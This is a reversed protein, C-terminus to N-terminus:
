QPMQGNRSPLGALNNLIVQRDNGAGSNLVNGDLNTDASNYTNLVQINGALVMLLKQRDNINIGGDGGTYLLISNNSADGGWMAKSTGVTRQANTGYTSATIFNYTVTTSIATQATATMIGLHNRHQVALHYTGPVVNFLVRSTGDIDVIDGNTKLLASRTAIIDTPTSSSRLELKVWDVIGDNTASTVITATEGTSYPSTQPLLNKTELANNMATGNTNLPGALFVKAEVELCIRLTVSATTTNPCTGDTFTYTVLYTGATSSALNIEGTTSNIILGSTSTYTGGSQGTQTVSATGRNKCYPSNSYAISAIPVPNVVVLAGGSFTGVCVTADSLATVSYNGAAAEDIVYPSVTIGNVTTSTTGNTYTLSWPQSGTLAISVNPLTASACVIGGGSVTATPNVCATVPTTFTWVPGTTTNLGDSVEVYWEYEAGADLSAWPLCTQTGSAVSLNTGILTFPLVAPALNVDLTFESSADIEYSNTQTSYTQVYIKNESPRFEFIRFLGNGGNTRGQYDSLITHMTNGLYTDTRRAEGTNGTIHGGVMLFVNPYVKLRTYLAQGQTGFAAAGDITYHTMIIIKKNPNAVVLGEAWDLAGGPASFAATQDYEVSIVMYDIGSASFLQYHNDNNSGNHGGYYNKGTFHAIGFTNNYGTTTGLADGIPTQDHNGACVGYPIGQPLGTTGANELSYMATAARTWEIPQADGHEVCDGLQGVYVINRAARNAVVWATQNNFFAPSAGHTQPEEVYYQTDPLWVMTFNSQAAQKKRGYFKVELNGGNPDSVTTCINPSTSAATAADAPAPNTPQAPPLNVPLTYGITLKPRDTVTAHERSRLQQGDDAHTAIMLWGNNSAPNNLWGQITTAPVTVTILGVYTDVGPWNANVVSEADTGNTAFHRNGLSAFSVTTENWPVLMRHMNFGQGEADVYFQLLASQITSGVPISSLDFSLLSTRDDPPVNAPNKDQVFTIEAGRATTPSVDYIYTDRTGNYGNVGDQLSISILAIGCTPGAFSSPGTGNIARVRYCYQSGATTTLDNYTAINAAVTALLTYTGTLTTSREIQFGTEDTANDTWSLQMNTGSIPTLSLNTPPSPTNFAFNFPAGPTVWSSGTGTITGHITTGASGNVNLGIADNLGWRGLLGTQTTILQANITSQIDAITRAYNWVRAEDLVGQFKGAATGTSTTMTGLAAHQISAGQPFVSPTLNLSGQEVGDLYIKFIGNSFTIAAHHWVNDTIATTGVIPHNLGPSTSGTGEEFDAAIFNTGSQIGLIYNADVTSGEAEPSGKSILPIITIGGSGTTNATGAGTKKFWTEVTFNQSALGPAAGFTVYAGAAGLDLANDGEVPTTACIATTYTSNGSGNIARVRYCYETNALININNYTTINAAVTAFLTYTGTAGTTSREIQFNTEDTSNDTWSLNIQFPSVATATLASPATPPVAFPPAGSVWTPPTANPMLTGNPSGAISNVATTGTGDNLGWRGLLGTGSTLELNMSAQIQTQTRAVNWIRAEDITGAFFGSSGGVPSGSTGLGTALAAHQTSLNEPTFASAFTLSYYLNGDLYLNWTPSSYTAAIHHWNGDIPIATPTGTGGPTSTVGGWVPHNLGTANDEFDACIYGTSTIGLFYNTNINAPTEGEGRGKTIVPYATPRGSVGDLGNTGTSMLVGGTSRKVWCELTFTQAGLTTTAAGFTVYQSTGNFQLGTQGLASSSGWALLVFAFAVLRFLPRFCHIFDFKISKHSFGSLFFHLDILKSIDTLRLSNLSKNKNFLTIQM